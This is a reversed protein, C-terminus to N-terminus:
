PEGEEIPIPPGIQAALIERDDENLPRKWKPSGLLKDLAAQLEAASGVRYRQPSWDCNDLCYQVYDEDSEFLGGLMEGGTIDFPVGDVIEIPELPWDGFETEGLFSPGGLAPRRFEGDKRAVFLMRCLVTTKYEFQGDAAERLLDGPRNLWCNQVAAAARLYPGSRFASMPEPLARVLALVHERERWRATLLGLVGAAITVALLAARLSFRLTRRRTQIETEIM